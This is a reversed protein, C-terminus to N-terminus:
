TAIGRLLHDVLGVLGDEDHRGIVRDAAARLEPTANGMAVGLGAGRIMELDNVEDGVACVAEAPIGRRAALSELAEWKSVGAPLIQCHHGELGLGDMVHAIVAGPLSAELERALVALEERPGFCGAVLVDGRPERALSRVRRAHRLNADFYARTPDNWRTEDEIVFDPEEPSRPDRQGILTLERRRVREAVRALIEPAFTRAALTTGRECKTLAGGLCITPVPLELSAVVRRATRYRRGTAVTVAIGAAAARRLARRTAATVHDGRAALTGDIDLALLRISPSPPM